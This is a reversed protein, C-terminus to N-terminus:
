SKIGVHVAVIGWALEYCRVEAFGLCKYIDSIEQKFRYSMISNYLYIYADKNGASIRGLFPVWNKLYFYYMQRFIPREPKVLELSVVRGGAKVVRKMESLAKEMDVVNRLGYGTIACDFTNDDFPLTMANGLVLDVKQKLGARELNKGAIVLMDSSFDLGIVKGGTRLLRALEISIMGTGCCVDLVYEGDQLGTKQVAFRKWYNHRGFSLLNNVLDYKIAISGFIRQIEKEKESIVM